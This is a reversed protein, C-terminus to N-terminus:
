IEWFVLLSWRVTKLNKPVNQCQLHHGLLLILLLPLLKDLINLLDRDRYIEQLISLPVLNNLM